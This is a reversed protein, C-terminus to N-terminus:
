AISPNTRHHTLKGNYEAMQEKYRRLDTEALGAYYERQDAPLARWREGIMKVLEKFGIKGHTKRHPRRKNTQQERLALLRKSRAAMKKHMEEKSLTPRKEEPKTETTETKTGEEKNGDNQSNDKVVKETETEPKKEVPDPIAALIREREESFFFNYASIITKFPITSFFSTSSNNIDLLVSQSLTM